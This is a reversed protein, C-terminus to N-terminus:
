WPVKRIIWRGNKSTAKYGHWLAQEQFETWSSHIVFGALAFHQFAVPFYGLRSDIGVVAEAILADEALTISLINAAPNTDRLRSPHLYDPYPSVEAMLLTWIFWQTTTVDVVLDLSCLYRAVSRLNTANGINEKSNHADSGMRSLIVTWPEQILRHLWMFDAEWLRMHDLSPNEILNM